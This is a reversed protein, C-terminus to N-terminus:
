YIQTRCHPCTTNHNFWPIICIRHFKHNCKLQVVTDTEIYDERCIACMLDDSLYKLVFTGTSTKLVNVVNKLQYKFIIFIIFRIIPFITLFTLINEGIIFNSISILIFSLIFILLIILINHNPLNMINYYLRGIMYRITVGMIFSSVILLMCYLIITLLIMPSYYNPLNTTDYVLRDNIFTYALTFGSYKGFYVISNVILKIIISNYLPVTYNVSKTVLFTCINTCYPVIYNTLTNM